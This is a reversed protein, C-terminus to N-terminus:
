ICFIFYWIQGTTDQKLQTIPSFCLIHIKNSNTECIHKKKINVIFSFEQYVSGKLYTM